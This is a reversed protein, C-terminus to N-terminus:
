RRYGSYALRSYMEHGSIGATMAAKPLLSSATCGPMNNGELVYVDGNGNDKIIVDVRMLESGNVAKAFNEALNKAENQAKESIAVPPCLYLTEGNAHTYKADYDYLKGPYRIEVMPLAEGLLIGVTAEVGQIYDEVLVNEDYKLATELANRWQGISEVLTLGFTSGESVPKVILPLTMADPIPVDADKIVAYRPTRIGNMEMIRKSVVKDMVARCVESAAGVFKIGAKELMEQLRGDEGFGGHLVPYVVDAWRMDDTVILEKIDYERVDHGAECLSKVVNAASELSVERESSVGGKLVLIKLKKITEMFKRESKPNMFKIEPNLVIGTKENVIRAMESVTELFDSERSELQADSAKNVIWNAHENSVEFSGHSIGKAGCYDLLQGAPLATAPNKFISGASRGKPMKTRRSLEMAFLNKEEQVMVKKFLFHASLVVHSSPIDSSRYRFNLKEAHFTHLIGDNLSCTYVEVLFDSITKANAGANMKLAGGVTGPIGYIGSAGGLGHALAYDLLQRIGNAAGCIINHEDHILLKGFDHNRTLKVFVTDNLLEDSGVVNSGGGLPLLRFENGSASLEVLALLQKLSSVEALLFPAIGAGLSTYDKWKADAHFKIGPLVSSIKEALETRTFRKPTSFGNASSM